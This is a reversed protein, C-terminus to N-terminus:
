KAYASGGVQFVKRRRWEPFGELGEGVNGGRPLRGQSGWISTPVGEEPCGEAAAFALPPPQTWQGEEEGHLFREVNVSGRVCPLGQAAPRGGGWNGEIKLAWVPPQVRNPPPGYISTVPSLLLYTHYANDGGM